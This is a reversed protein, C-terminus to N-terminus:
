FLFLVTKSNVLVSRLLVGKIVRLKPFTYSIDGKWYRELANVRDDFTVKGLMEFPRTFIVKRDCKCYRFLESELLKLDNFTHKQVTFTMFTMLLIPATYDCRLTSYCM